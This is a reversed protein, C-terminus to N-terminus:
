IPIPAPLPAISGLGAVRMYM